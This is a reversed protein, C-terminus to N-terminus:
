NEEHDTEIHHTSGCISCRSSHFTSHGADTMPHEKEIHRALNADDWARFLCRPCTPYTTTM